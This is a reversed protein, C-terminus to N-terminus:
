PLPRTHTQSATLTKDRVACGCCVEFSEVVRRGGRVDFVAEMPSVQWSSLSTESQSKVGCGVECWRRSRYWRRSRCVNVVCVVIQCIEVVGDEGLKEKRRSRDAINIVQKSKRSMIGCM